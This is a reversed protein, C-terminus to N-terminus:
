MFGDVRLIQGNIFSAKPSALFYVADAIEEPKGLRHMASLSMMSEKAKDGMKDAFQTSTLGPAVANVRIGLSATEKALIQTFIAMSAKTAGYVANGPEGDLGAVSSLNVIAANDNKKMISLIGQTIQLQAFYNIQFVRRVDAMKTFPLIALHPVGACNVLVDIKLKLAKIDKIGNKISEEDELDFFIKHITVKFEQELTTVFASINENDKLFCLILEACEEAFKKTIEKGIGGDAGTIMVVRNGMYKKCKSLQYSRLKIQSWM